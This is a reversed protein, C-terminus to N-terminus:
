YGGVGLGSTATAPMRDARVEDDPHIYHRARGITMGTRRGVRDAVAWFTRALIRDEFQPWAAGFSEDDTLPGLTLHAPALAVLEDEVQQAAECLSVLEDLAQTPMQSTGAEWRRVTRGGIQLYDALDELSLNLVIRTRTLLAATEPTKVYM